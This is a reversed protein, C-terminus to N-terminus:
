QKSAASTPESAGRDRLITGTPTQFERIDVAEVAPFTGGNIIQYVWDRKSPGPTGDDIRVPVLNKM